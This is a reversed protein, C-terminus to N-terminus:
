ACAMTALVKEDASVKRRRTIIEPTDYGIMRYRHPGVDITDGDMATIAEARIPQAHVSVSSLALLVAAFPLLHRMQMTRTQVCLAIRLTLCGIDGRSAEGVCLRNTSM